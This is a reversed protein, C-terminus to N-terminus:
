SFGRKQLKGYKERLLELKPHIYQRCFPADKRNLYYNCYSDRNKRFENYELVQTIIESDFDRQLLDISGLAKERQEPLLCYVASRYKSRQSHNSTSSHTHLHIEILDHLSIQKPDFHVIVAESFGNFPPHSSIWGQDVQEVGMLSQFVAETCWHCGGGFGIKLLM